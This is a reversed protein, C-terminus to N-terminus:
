LLSAHKPYKNDNRFWSVLASSGNANEPDAHIFVKSSDWKIAHDQTSSYGFRIEPDSSNHVTLPADPSTTGIGVNGGNFHTVGNSRLAITTSGAATSAFLGADIGSPAYANLNGALQLKENPSATGIGVNGNDHIRMVEAYSGGGIFKLAGAYSGGINLDDSSDLEIITRESGGSDKQRIETNNELLIHGGSVHLKQAPSTTGIGVNSGSTVSLIENGAFGISTRTGNPTWINFYDSGTFDGNAGDMWIVAGDGYEAFAIASSGDKVKFDGAVDLKYSPSTTGIGVNGASNIILRDGGGVHFLVQNNASFGFYTDADGSHKLYQPITIDGAFTASGVNTLDMVTESGTINRTAFSIYSTQAKNLIAISDNLRINSPTITSTAITDVYISAWRTANAGLNYTSDASPLVHGAFTGAGDVTIDGSSSIQMVGSGNNGADINLVNSSDVYQRVIGSDNTGGAGRLRLDSAVDLRGTIDVNRLFNIAM